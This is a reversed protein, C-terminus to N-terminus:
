EVVRRDTTTVSTEVCKMGDDHTRKMPTVQAVRLLIHLRLGEGKGSKGEM